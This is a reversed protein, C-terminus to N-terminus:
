PGYILVKGSATPLFVRGAAVTPPVYKAFWYKEGHNAWIEKMTFPDFARLIGFDQNKDCPDLKDEGCHKVSAFVVGLGPGNPDVNVSLMGGPMGNLRDNLNPPALAPPEGQLPLVDFSDGLWRYRKIRDKEAWVFMFAQDVGFRAFVPTGHIHPWKMVENVKFNADDPYQNEGAQFKQRVNDHKPDDAVRKDNHSVSEPRGPGVYLGSITNFHWKDGADDFHSLDARDLVYIIGEKGGIVIYRTGPILLTGSSALDLDACDGLMKRYPTFYDEVTMVVSYPKGPRKESKLRIVSNSLNTTDPAAGGKVGVLCPGPLRRNGTAFYLNGRTDAALGTAGQWIGGGDTNDDTVQFEGVHDLTRADFAVISGHMFQPAGECLDSFALYVVGDALLLSARNRHLKRWDPNLAPHPPPVPVSKKIHGDNLDIAALNQNGDVTKFGVLVQNNAGDIVPTAEIGVLGNVGNPLGDKGIPLGKPLTEWEQWAANAAIDCDAEGIRPVLCPVGPPPGCRESVLADGLHAPGKWLLRKGLNSPPESPSVALVDNNSTALILAEQRINNVIAKQVYLPQATVVGRVPLEGLKRFHGVTVTNQNLGPVFSAGSRWAPRGSASRKTM